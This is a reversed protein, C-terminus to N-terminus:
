YGAPLLLHRSMPVPAPSLTVYRNSNLVAIRKSSYSRSSLHFGQLPHNSASSARAAALTVVAFGRLSNPLVDLMMHKSLIPSYMISQPDPEAFLTTTGNRKYDHAMTAARGPNMPLGPQTRDLAEVQSKEDCRLVLAHELPSLYLGVMDELKEVFNPDRSVKFSKVQHPKFGHAKWIRQVTTDSVGAVGALTRTSRQTAGESKTQTTLRVIEAADAKPKRGGRPL